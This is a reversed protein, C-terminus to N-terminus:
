DNQSILGGSNKKKVNGKEERRGKGRLYLVLEPFSTVPCIASIAKLNKQSHKGFEWLEFTEFFLHVSLIQFFSLPCPIYGSLFSMRWLLCFSSLHSFTGLTEQLQCSGLNHHKDLFLPKNKGMNPGLHRSCAQCAM